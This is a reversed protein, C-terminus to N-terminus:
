VNNTKDVDLRCQVHKEETTVTQRKDPCYSKFSIVNSRSLYKAHQNVKVSDTDLYDAGLGTVKNLPWPSLDYILTGPWM